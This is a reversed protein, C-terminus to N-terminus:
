SRWIVDVGWMFCAFLFLIVLVQAFLRLGYPKLYDTTVTWVGVWAHLLLALLTMLSALQMLKCQFLKMWISYTMPHHVCVYSLLFIVYLGVVVASVRQILWDRLGSRTLSTVSSVM